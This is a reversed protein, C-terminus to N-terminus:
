FDEHASWEFDQEELKRNASHETAEEVFRQLLDHFAEECTRGTGCIYDPYGTKPDRRHLNAHAAFGAGPSALVKVKMKPFPFLEGDLWVQYQAVVTDIRAIGQM